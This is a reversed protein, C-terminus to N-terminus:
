TPTAEMYGRITVIGMAFKIDCYMLEFYRLDEVGEAFAVATNKGDLPEKWDTNFRETFRILSYLLEIGLYIDLVSTGDSNSGVSYSRTHGDSM